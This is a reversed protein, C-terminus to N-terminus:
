KKLCFVAYSIVLHSSNLRTSKRDQAGGIDAGQASVQVGATLKALSLYDRGILPLIDIQERSVLTYIVSNTTEVLPAGATVTVEEVVSAPRVEFDLTMEGGINLRVSDRRAPAFGVRKAVVEYVGPPLVPIRYAGDTDTIASRVLGTHVNRATVAAAPVVAGSGDTIRGVVTATEAAFLPTAVCAAVILTALRPARMPGGGTGPNSPSRTM